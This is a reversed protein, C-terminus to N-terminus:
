ELEFSVALTVSLQQEGPEIPTDAGKNRAVMMAIPMPAPANATGESISLIRRVRLGAAAAYLQARKRATAIANRRAEDLAEEPQEVSFSPGNIQNIGQAVLRDILAGTRAVDRFRISLQNSAQYGTLLPPRNEEYRYVPSLSIAATRIDRPDIGAAKLAAIAAATRRANDQMATAATPAESLTGASITVLDPARTVNGEASLELRTTVPSTLPAPIQAIAATGGALATALGLPLLTRM